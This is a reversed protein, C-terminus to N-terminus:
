DGFRRHSGGLTTRWGPWTSRTESGDAWRSVIERTAHERAAHDILRPVRLEVDQMGGLM